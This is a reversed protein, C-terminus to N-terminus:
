QVRGSVRELMTVLREMAERQEQERNAAIWCVLNNGTAWLFLGVLGWWRLVPFLMVAGVITFVMSLLSMGIRVKASYNM